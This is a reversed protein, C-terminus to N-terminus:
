DVTLSLALGAAEDTSLRSGENLLEDIRGAGLRERLGAELSCLAEREWRHPHTELRALLGHIAGLLRAAIEPSGTVEAVSVATLFPEIMEPAYSRALSTVLTSRQVQWARSIDGRRRAVEGQLNRVWTSTREENLETLLSMAQELMTASAALDGGDLYVIARGILDEAMVSRDGLEEALRYSERYLEEARRAQGLEYLALAASGLATATGWTDGQARRLVLVEEYCLLARQYNGTISLAQGLNRLSLAIGRDDGASRHLALSEELLAVAEHTRRLGLLLTGHNNMAVALEAPTGHARLFDLAEASLEAARRLDGLRYHLGVLGNLVRAHTSPELEGPLARVAELWRLGEIGHGRMQWFRWLAGALVGAQEKERRDILWRLATRFNDQEAELRDMWRRQNAGRLEPRAREALALYAGAHRSRAADEGGTRRLIDLAYQRVPESLRFRADEGATGAILLSREVLQALLDLVTRPDVLDACLEEAETLGFGGAFVGIRRFVRQESPSLLSYSWDLTARLARHRAPGGRDQTQLLALADDLRAAIETPPLTPIRAAALEIALPTGELRRCIAAVAGANGADLAFAADRARAREEFLRVAASERLAPVDARGEAPLSLPPVRFITEGSVHLPERSTALVRLGPCRNLLTATMEAAVVILHECNDLLLLTNGSGM